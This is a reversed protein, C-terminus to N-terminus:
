SRERTRRERYHNNALVGIACMVVYTAANAPIQLNFDAMSHILLAVIGVSAGFGVGARYTSEGQWMARQAHYLGLLVFLVLPLSGLLGYEIVFQLYDNHAHDFHLGIDASAVKGFLVEFTGAGHGTLLQERALPLAELYVTGRLENAAQVTQGDVVVASLQTNAIRDALKDLGFYQSVILLDILVLSALILGNRLRHTKDSLLFLGGVLLLSTFFATNGMRSHSMVLAITMLVLALRLRGKPGLLMELANIWRFPREDRLALLLGVGAALTLELYGALHNRNIFTGTADGLYTTKSGVLLGEVGSLTMVAGFFAQFTGSVVLVALLLSLRKRTRFLDVVLVFLLSYAVGLMLYQFTAATDVTIGLLWQLLVWLQSLLLLGLMPLGARLTPGMDRNRRWANLAWGAGLGCCLFVLLGMSWDRNSGIPLPLWLLLLLAGSILARELRKSPAAM